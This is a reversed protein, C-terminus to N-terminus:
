FEFSKLNSSKNDAVRQQFVFELKIAIKIYKARLESM